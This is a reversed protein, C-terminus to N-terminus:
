QTLKDYVVSDTEPIRIGHEDILAYLSTISQFEDDLVDSHENARTLHAMFAVFDDVSDPLKSINYNYTRLTELLQTSKERALEPLMNQVDALRREPVPLLLKKLNESDARIIS